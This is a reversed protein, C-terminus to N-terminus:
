LDTLQGARRSNGAAGQQGGCQVIRAECHRDWSRRLIRTILSILFVGYGVLM